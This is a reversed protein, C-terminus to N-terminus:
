EGPLELHQPAGRLELGLPLLKSPPQGRRGVLDQRQDGLHVVEGAAPSPTPSTRRGICGSTVRSWGPRQGLHPIFSSTASNAVWGPPLWSEPAITGPASWPKWSWWPSAVAVVGSGNLLVRFAAMAAVAVAVAVARGLPDLPFVVHHLDVPRGSPHTFANM